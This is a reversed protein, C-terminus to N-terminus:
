SDFGHGGRWKEMAKRVESYLFRRRGGPFVYSPIDGVKAREYVWDPSMGMLPALEHASLLPEPEPPSLAQSM